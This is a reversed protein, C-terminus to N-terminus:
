ERRRKDDEIAWCTWCVPPGWSDDMEDKCFPCRHRRPVWGSAKWIISFYFGWFLLWEGM